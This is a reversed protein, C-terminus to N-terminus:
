DHVGLVFEIFLAAMKKMVRKLRRGRAAHVLSGCITTTVTGTTVSISIVAVAGAAAMGM